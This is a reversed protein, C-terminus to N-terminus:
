NNLAEAREKLALNMQEFQSKTETLLKNKFLRVLIGSFIEGHSFLTTGDKQEQFNFYHEGDFIGKMFLKGKWRFETEPDFNLVIPKFKMGGLEVHIHQGKEIHGEVKKIFPNWTAYSKFDTLVTWVQEVPAHITIQTQLRM